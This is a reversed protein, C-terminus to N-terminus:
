AWHEVRMGQLSVLCRAEGGEDGGVTRLGLLFVQDDRGESWESIEPGLERGSDVGLM